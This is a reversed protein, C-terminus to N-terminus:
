GMAIVVEGFAAPASADGCDAGGRGLMVNVKGITKMVLGGGDSPVVWSSGEWAWM